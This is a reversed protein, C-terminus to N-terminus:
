TISSCQWTLPTLGSSPEVGTPELSITLWGAWGEDAKRWLKTRMQLSFDDVADALKQKEAAHDQKYTM